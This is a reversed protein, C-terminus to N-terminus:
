ASKSRGKAAELEQRQGWLYFVFGVLSGVGAASLVAFASQTFTSNEAAAQTTLLLGFLSVKFGLGDSLIETLSFGGRGILVVIKGLVLQLGFSVCGAVMISFSIWHFAPFSLIESLQYIPDLIGASINQATPDADVTKAVDETAATATESLSDTIERTKDTVQKITNSDANEEAPTQTAVSESSASDTSAPEQAAAQQSISIAIPCLLTGLLLGAILYRKM